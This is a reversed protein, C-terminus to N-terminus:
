FILVSIFNEAAHFIITAWLSSTRKFIYGLLLGSIFVIISMRVIDGNSSEAVWVWGLWHISAFLAAMILNAKWFSTIELLKQLFFGRFLIEEAVTSFLLLDLWETPGLLWYIKGKSLLVFYIYSLAFLVASLAIGSLIGRKVHTTLKLYQLPPKHDILKLYLFVPVAM